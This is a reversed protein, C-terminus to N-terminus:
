RIVAKRGGGVEPAPSVGSGLTHEAKSSSM